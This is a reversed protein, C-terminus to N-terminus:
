SSASKLFHVAVKCCLSIGVCLPTRVKWRELRNALSDPINLNFAGLLSCSMVVYIIVFTWLIFPNALISGADKGSNPQTPEAFPKMSFGM